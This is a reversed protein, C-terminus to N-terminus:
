QSSESCDPFASTLTLNELNFTLAAVNTGLTFAGAKTGPENEAAEPAGATAEPDDLAVDDGEWALLDVGAEDFVFLLHM